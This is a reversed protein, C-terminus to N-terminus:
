FGLLLKFVKSRNAETSWRAQLIVPIRDYARPILATPRAALALSLTQLMSGYEPDTYVFSRQNLNSTPQPLDITVGSPVAAGVSTLVHATHKKVACLGISSVLPLILDQSSFHAMRYTGTIFSQGAMSVVDGSTIYHTVGDSLQPQFLRAYSGRIGPSNFTIVKGIHGGMRTYRSAIWQTLAGGLSHGLIDVTQGASDDTVSDMWKKVVPWNDGFQRAGVGAANLDDLFDPRNESGRIALVPAENSSTLGLAYFGDSRNEFVQGVIFGPGVDIPQGKSFSLYATNKALNEADVDSIHATGLEITGSVTAHMTPFTPETQPPVPSISVFQGDIMEQQVDSFEFSIVKNGDTRTSVTASGDEPLPQFYVSSVQASPNNYAYLNWNPQGDLEQALPYTGDTTLAADPLTIQIEPGSYNYAGIEVYGAPPPLHGAQDGNRTIQVNFTNFSGLV